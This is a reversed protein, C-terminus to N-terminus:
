AWAPVGSPTPLTRHDGQKCCLGVCALSCTSAQYIFEDIMDWLWGNPLQLAPLVRELWHVPRGFFLCVKGCTELHSHMASAATLLM